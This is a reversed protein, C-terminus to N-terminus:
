ERASVAACAWSPAHADTLVPHPPPPPPPHQHRTRSADLSPRSSTTKEESINKRESAAISVRGRRREANTRARVGEGEGGEQDGGWGAYLWGQGMAEAECGSVKGMNEMERRQGTRIREDM